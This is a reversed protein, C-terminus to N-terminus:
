RENHAPYTFGRWGDKFTVLASWTGFTTSYQWGHITEPKEYSYFHQFVKANTPIKGYAKLAIDDLEKNSQYLKMSVGGYLNLRDECTNHSVSFHGQDSLSNNKITHRMVIINDAKNLSLDLFFHCAITTKFYLIVVHQIYWM